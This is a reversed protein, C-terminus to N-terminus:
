ILVGQPQQLIKIVRSLSETTAFALYQCCLWDELSVGCGTDLSREAFKIMMLTRKLDLWNQLVTHRQVTGAAPNLSNFLDERPGWLLCQLCARADAMQIRESPNPNLLVTALQQLGNSYLSRLPLQPLDSSCYEREKLEPCEEFPNPRHLMEYILIGTQFEDCKRYQTATLLEPALRSQDRLSAPELVVNKLKAQSFNSIILRAPCASAAASSPGSAANNNPEMLELNWPNGPQCHVLLLNELRLDCHTVHYPKMHELGACLQLLLLCVQREYLEPNRTHREVGERVFDAVTQFPVERTIVVVRSCLKGGPGAADREDEKGKGEEGGETGGQKDEGDEEREWPLLRAPVDALFHGCDQQINFHVAISQRVALSHFFQQQTEKVVGQCIKVAYNTLPEKAFSATYYVADGAECCPKGATLRFHSWSDTGFRLHDKQGAMFRDECRAALKRLTDMHLGRIRGVVEEWSEMGRYPVQKQAKAPRGAGRTRATLSETSRYGRRDCAQMSSSSNLCSLSRGGVPRELSDGSEDPHRAESSLSSSQSATDWTSELDYLPNAVSLNTGGPRAEGKPRPASLERGLASPETQARPVSKKPLPPPTSKTTPETVEPECTLTDDSAKPHRPHKVPIMNARSQGLNTYTARCSSSAPSHSITYTIGEEEQEAQRSSNSTPSAPPPCSAPPEHLPSLELKAPLSTASSIETDQVPLQNMVKSILLSARSKPPTSLCSAGGESTGGEKHEEVRIEAEEGGTVSESKYTFIITPKQHPDDTKSESFWHQRQLPPPPLVTIVTGDLGLLKGKEKEREMKEKLEDEDKRRRFFSKFSIWRKPKNSDTSRRGEAGPSTEGDSPKAGAPRTWNSFHRQLLNSSHYPSSSSRAPPFPASPESTPSTPPVAASASQSKPLVKPLTDKQPEASCHLSKPRNPADRSADPPLSYLEEASCTKSQGAPSDPPSPPPQISAVIQSLVASAKERQGSSGNLTVQCDKSGETPQESSPNRIRDLSSHALVAPSPSLSGVPLVSVGTMTRSKSDNVTQGSITTTRLEGPATVDTAHKLQPPTQESLSPQFSVSSGIEEYTHSAVREGAGPKSHPLEGNLGLFSKYVALNDYASPNIVIPVKVAKKSSRAYAPEDRIIIPFPPMGANNYSNFKIESLNPSKTPVTRASGFGATPSTPASKHNILRPAASSSTLDVKPIKQRPSTCSTWVEQYRISGPKTHFGSPRGSASSTPSQPMLPSLSVCPSAVPSVASRPSQPSNPSVPCPEASPCLVVSPGSSKPTSESSHTHEDKTAMSASVDVVTYPKCFPTKELNVVRYPKAQEETPSFSITIPQGPLAQPLAGGERQVDDQEELQIALVAKHSESPKPLSLGKASPEKSPPFPLGNRQDGTGRSSGACSEDPLSILSEPSTTSESTSLFGSGQRDSTYSLLVPAGNSDVSPYGNLIEDYSDDYDVACFRQLSRNRLPVTNWKKGVAFPVPSLTAARFNAFRPQGRMRIGMALLEEDNEDWSDHEGDDDDEDGSEDEEDDGDSSFEPYCFCGGESSIVEASDSLSVRKMAGRGSSGAHICSSAPLGRELSRRYSSCIRGFFDDRSSSPSPGLGAIEKLVDTLGNNNSSTPQPSIAGYAEAQRVLDEGQNNNTGTPRSSNLSNQNWVTFPSSKTIQAGTLRPVNGESDLGPPSCPLMMTPKVAITPKKAVPPRVQGARSSSISRQSNTLKASINTKSECAANAQEPPRHLSKPKFCNKCEGPKWVHETFTNCASM